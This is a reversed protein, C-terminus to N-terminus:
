SSWKSKWRKNGFSASRVQSNFFLCFYKVRVNLKIKLPSLERYFVYKYVVDKIEKPSNLYEYYFFYLSIGFNNTINFRFWYKEKLKKYSLQFNSHFKKITAKITVGDLALKRFKRCNASFKIQKAILM